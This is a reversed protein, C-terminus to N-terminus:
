RPRLAPNSSPPEALLQAVTRLLGPLDALSVVADARTHRRLAELDGADVVGSMLCIATYRPAELALQWGDGDPLYQDLIALAVDGAALIARAERARTVTIVVEHGARLLARSLTSAVQPQDEVVLLITPPPTRLYARLRRQAAELRALAASRAEDLTVVCM